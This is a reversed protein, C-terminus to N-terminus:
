AEFVEEELHEPEFNNVAAVYGRIAQTIRDKAERRSRARCFCGPLSTCQAVYDGDECQQMKITVKMAVERDTEGETALLLQHM